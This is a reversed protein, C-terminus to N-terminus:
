RHRRAEDRSSRIGGIAPVLGQSQVSVGGRGSRGDKALGIAAVVLGAVGFPFAPYFLAPIGLMVSAAVLSGSGALVAMGIVFVFAPQGIKGAFAM